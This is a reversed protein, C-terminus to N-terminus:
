MKDKESVHSIVINKLILMRVLIYDPLKKFWKLIRLKMIEQINFIENTIGSEIIKVVAKATDKAHLWMRKPTGKNHLPIKKGLQLYKCTKPLLKEAHQHTGYNNMPRVIIYPLKYTRGWATVLQSAASKTASYPNSPKLLDTEKHSGELVDGYEEDTGFQLLIPKENKVRILELINHVGNINSKLFGHSNSISNDVHSEAALNLFYDVDYLFTIDNIDQQTFMFRDGYVSFEEILEPHSAYTLKDIGWVYWGMNLCQRTVHSGIFGLCGTIAITMKKNM